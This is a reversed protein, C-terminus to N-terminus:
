LQNAKNRHDNVKNGEHDFTLREFTLPEPMTELDNIKMIIEMSTPITNEGIHLASGEGVLPYRNATLVHVCFNGWDEQTALVVVCSNRLNAVITNRISNLM